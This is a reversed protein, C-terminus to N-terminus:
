DCSAWREMQCTLSTEFTIHTNYGFHPYADLYKRIGRQKAEPTEGVIEVTVKRQNNLVTYIKYDKSM